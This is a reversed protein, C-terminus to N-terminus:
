TFVDKIKSFFDKKEAKQSDPTFHKSDKLTEIQEKEKESLKTPIYIHVKVFQDGVASTNLGQIGKGKMRLLKGPQTGEEVKIKAKGKLTPVEVETGLIADPVSLNLNYYIDNGDREFNKHEEEELLVILSGAEGGRMGANGQGRLTIYNGDTVGSPVKIKVTEEGKVRGEGACNSCKNKITRGEGHCTPCPQVNVFQGFMTRSVQRVEGMGNCTECTMFDSDTEAGTGECQSCKVHKKVKLKKETGYAIEKLDLSIRIKLDSGPRGSQSRRRSRGGGAGGFGAGGGGGFIDSGFIDSFQSFIDNINVNQFDPENFGGSHMGQHGFQDYRARKNPDKLVDFAEAADKFKKESDPDDPNRDPHFKLAMKRYAKKIDQESADKDVGLVEYYDRKSM